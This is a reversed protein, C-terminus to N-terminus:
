KLEKRAAALLVRRVWGSMTEGAHAAATEIIRKDQEKIRINFQLVWRSRGDSGM